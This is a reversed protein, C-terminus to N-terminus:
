YSCWLPTDSCNQSCRCPKARPYAPLRPRGLLQGWEGDRAPSLTGREWPMRSIYIADGVTDSLSRSVGGVWVKLVLKVLCASLPVPHSGSEQAPVHIGPKCCCRERGSTHGSYQPVLPFACPSSTWALNLTTKQSLFIGRWLISYNNTFM